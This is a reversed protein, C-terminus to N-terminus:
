LLKLRVKKKANYEDGFYYLKFTHISHEELDLDTTVKSLMNLDTIYVMYSIVGNNRHMRDFVVGDFTKEFITPKNVCLTMLECDSQVKRISRMSNNIYEIKGLWKDLFDNAMNSVDNVMNFNHMYMFQNLLDVLRRIPSTIHVYNKTNLVDHRMNDHDDNYLTYEGSLNRWNEIMRRMDGTVSPNNIIIPSSKAVANRYIGFKNKVMFEGCKTNMFVMWFAVVDHSDEIDYKM